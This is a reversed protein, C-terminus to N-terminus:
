QRWLRPLPRGDRLVALGAEVAARLERGQPALLRAALLGEAPLSARCWPFRSLAERLVELKTAADPAAYLLFATGAAGGGRAPAALRGAIPPLLRTPEWLLLSGEREVVVLEGVEGSEPMEGRARRGWLVTEVGIFRAEGALRVALTRQLRCNDFYISEQPLWELLSGEGVALRTTMRAPPKGAAAGYFKEAAATTVSLRGAGGLVIEVTLDDGAVVGGATNILVAEPRDPPAHPFRLRLGGAQYLTYSGGGMELRVCGTLAASAWSLEAEYRLGGGSPRTM